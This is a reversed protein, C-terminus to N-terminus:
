PLAVLLKSGVNASFVGSRLVCSTLYDRWNWQARAVESTERFPHSRRMKGIQRRVPYLSVNKRTPSFDSAAQFNRTDFL